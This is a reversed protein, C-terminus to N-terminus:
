GRRCKAVGVTSRSAPRGALPGPLLRNMAIVSECSENSTEFGIISKIQHRSHAM